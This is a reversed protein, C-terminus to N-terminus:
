SFPHRYCLRLMSLVPVLVWPTWLVLIVTRYARSGGCVNGGEGHDRECLGYHKVWKGDSTSMKHASETLNAPASDQEPPCLGVM